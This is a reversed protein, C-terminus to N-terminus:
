VEKLQALTPDALSCTLGDDLNFHTIVNDKIVASYRKGRKSGLKETVDLVVDFAEALKGHMDALFRIKGHANNVVGWETLVFPDNVATFVIVDAGAAKFQDLSAVFGPLHTKSCGPTFAGPVNVLVGKKGKFVDRLQVANVPPSGAQIQTLPTGEYLTVDPVQDGAKPVPM